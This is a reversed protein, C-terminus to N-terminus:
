GADLLFGEHDFELWIEDEVTYAAAVYRSLLKPLGPLQNLPHLTTLAQPYGDIIFGSAQEGKDLVLIMPNDPQMDPDVDLLRTLDCVPILNGRLNIMGSLWLPAAPIIAIPMMPVVESGVGDRILLSFNAVRFGYRLTEAIKEAAAPVFGEPPEFRNLAESPMLGTRVSSHETRVPNSSSDNNHNMAQIM